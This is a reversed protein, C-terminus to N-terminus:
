FNDYFEEWARKGYKWITKGMPRGKFLANSTTPTSSCLPIVVACIAAVGVCVIVPSVAIAGGIALKEYICMEHKKWDKKCHWCFEYGCEPNKCTMHKCGGNKIIPTKCEPCQKSVSFKVWLKQRTEDRKFKRKADCIGPHKDQRCYCCTKECNECKWEKLACKDEVIVANECGPNGCSHLNNTHDLLKRTLFRNYKDADESELRSMVEKPILHYNCSPCSISKIQGNRVLFSLSDTLCLDCVYTHCNANHGKRIAGPKFYDSCIGCYFEGLAGPCETENVGHCDCTASPPPPLDLDVIVEVNSDELKEEKEKAIDNITIESEVLLMKLTKIVEKIDSDKKEETKKGTKVNAFFEADFDASLSGLSPFLSM